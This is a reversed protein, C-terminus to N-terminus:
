DETEWNLPGPMFQSWDTRSKNEFKHIKELYKAEGRNINNWKHEMDM